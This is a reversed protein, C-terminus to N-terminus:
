FKLELPEHTHRKSEPPLEMYDGYMRELYVELKSLSPYLKGEFQVKKPPYYIDYEMIEKEVSYLGAFSAVYKPEHGDRKIMLKRAKELLIKNSFFNYPFSLICDITYKVRTSNEKYFKKCSRFRLAHIILKLRFIDIKLGFSERNDFTDLPFVDIYIGNDKYLGDSIKERFLTNEKRVKAFALFYDDESSQDQVKYASNKDERIIKILKDYDERPMVIDLDDDWPIFGQHRKAGLATGGALFYTLNNDKCLADCYDLIEVLTSHLKKMREETYEMNATRKGNWFKELM